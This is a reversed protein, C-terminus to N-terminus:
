ANGRKVYAILQGYENRVEDGPAWEESPVARLSTTGQQEHLAYRKGAITMWGKPHLQRETIIRINTRESEPVTWMEEATTPREQKESM